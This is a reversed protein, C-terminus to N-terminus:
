LLIIQNDQKEVRAAKSPKARIWRYKGVLRGEIIGAALMERIDRPGRPGIFGWPTNIRYIEFERVWEPYIDELYKKIIEKQSM